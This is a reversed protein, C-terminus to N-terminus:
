GVSRFRMPGYPAWLRSLVRITFLAPLLKSNNRQGLRIMFGISGMAWAAVAVLAAARLLQLFGGEPGRQGWKSTMEDGRNVSM